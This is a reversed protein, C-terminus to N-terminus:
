TVPLPEVAKCKATLLPCCPITCTRHLYLQSIAACSQLPSVGKCSIRSMLVIETIKSSKYIYDVCEKVAWQRNMETKLANTM